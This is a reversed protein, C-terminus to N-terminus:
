WIKKRLPWTIHQLLLFKEAKTGTIYGQRGAVGAIVLVAAVIVYKGYKSWLLQMRDRKLDDEVEDFIDAM